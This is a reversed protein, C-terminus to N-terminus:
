SEINRISGIDAARIRGNHIATGVLIKSIGCGQFRIIDGIESVGGGTIFEANLHRFKQAIKILEENIGSNSGVTKLDLLIYKRVGLGFFKEVLEYPTYNRFIGLPAGDKIDISVIVKEPGFLQLAEESVSVDEISETGVIVRFVSKLLPADLDARNQIGSDLYLNLDLSTILEYLMATNKMDRSIIADLDAVYISDLGMKKKFAETISFVRSDESLISVVPKYNDRDGKVAHVAVGNKIDVVPILEM